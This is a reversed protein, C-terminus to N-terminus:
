RGPGHGPPAGASLASTTFSRGTGIVGGLSSVWALNASLDGAEDIATGTFTVSSGVPLQSGSAPAAITVQPARNNSTSGPTITVIVFTSGTLGSSDAVQATIVHTGRALTSTAISGGTGIPGNLDSVWSIRATVNGDIGDIATAQFTLPTGAPASAGDLPQTITVRPAANGIGITITKTATLGDSDTVTATIVHRAPVLPPAPSRSLTTHPFLPSRPPRRTM